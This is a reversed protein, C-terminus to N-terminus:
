PTIQEMFKNYSEMNRRLIDECPGLVRNFRERDLKVCKVPGVALVTAARPQDTLLAIEGFYDAPNLLGLSREQGDVTKLVKVTGEVIIYFVDGREGQRVITEGNRFSVSELADSITIREYKTLHEFIPVRELFMEYMKRKKITTDMLVRRYTFRDVCWLRVDTQAKVTAARPCGYILALEGFSGGPGVTAVRQLTPQEKSVYVECIGSDVVYFNDGQDGQKIITEGAKFNVECMANFIQKREDEELRSFL